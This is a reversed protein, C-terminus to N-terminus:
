GFRLHSTTPTPEMTSLCQKALNKIVSSHGINHPLQSSTSNSTVLVGCIINSNIIPHKVLYTRKHLQNLAKNVPHTEARYYTLGM